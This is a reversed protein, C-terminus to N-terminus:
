KKRNSKRGVQLTEEAEKRKEAAWWQRFATKRRPEGPHVVEFGVDLTPKDKKEPMDNLLEILERCERLLKRREEETLAPNYWVDDKKTSM